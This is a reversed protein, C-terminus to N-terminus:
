LQFNYTVDDSGIESELRVLRDLKNNWAELRRDSALYDNGDQLDYSDKNLEEDPKLATLFEIGIKILDKKLKDAKEPDAQSLEQIFDLRGRLKQVLNMQYVSAYEDDSRMNTHHDRSTPHEYGQYAQLFTKLKEVADQNCDM